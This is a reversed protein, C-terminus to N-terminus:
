QLTTIFFRSSSQCARCSCLFTSHDKVHGVQETLRPVTVSSTSAQLMGLIKDRAAEPDHDMANRFADVCKPHHRCTRDSARELFMMASRHLKGDVRRGDAGEGSCLACTVDKLFARRSPDPFFSEAVGIRSCFRCALLGDTPVLTHACAEDYVGGKALRVLQEHTIPETAAGMESLVTPNYMNAHTKDKRPWLYVLNGDPQIAFEAIGNPLPPPGSKVMYRHEVGPGEISRALAITDTLVRLDVTHVRKIKVPFDDRVVASSRKAAILGDNDLNYVVDNPCPYWPKWLVFDPLLSPREARQAFFSDWSVGPAATAEFGYFHEGLIEGQVVMGDCARSTGQRWLMLPSNREKLLCCGKSFVLYAHVGNVKLSFLLKDGRFM